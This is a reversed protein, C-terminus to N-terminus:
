ASKPGRKQGARWSVTRLDGTRMPDIVPRVTTEPKTHAGAHRILRAFEAAVEDSPFRHARNHLIEGTEADAEGDYSLQAQRVIAEPVPVVKAARLRKVARGTVETWDYEPVEAM